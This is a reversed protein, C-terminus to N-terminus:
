AAPQDERQSATPGILDTLGVGLAQAILSAESITFDGTALKRTLTTRAIGTEKALWYVSRGAKFATASINASVKDATEAAAAQTVM